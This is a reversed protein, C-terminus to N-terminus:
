NSSEYKKERKKKLYDPNTLKVGSCFTKQKKNEVFGCKSCVKTRGLKESYDHEGDIFFGREILDDEPWLFFLNHDWDIGPGAANVQVHPHSGIGTRKIPIVVELEGNQRLKDYEDDRIYLGILDYLEKLKM